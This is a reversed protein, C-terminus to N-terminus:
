GIIKNLLKVLTRQYLDLLLLNLIYLPYRCREFNVEEKDFKFNKLLYPVPAPVPVWRTKPTRKRLTASGSGCPDTDNQYGPNADPQFTPDM